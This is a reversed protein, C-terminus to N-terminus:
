LIFLLICINKKLHFFNYQATNLITVQYKIKYIYIYIYRKSWRYDWFLSLDQISQSGKLDNFNISFYLGLIQKLTAIYYSKLFATINSDPWPTELFNKLCSPCDWYFHTDQKPWQFRKELNNCTLCFSMNMAPFIIAYGIFPKQWNWDIQKQKFLVTM